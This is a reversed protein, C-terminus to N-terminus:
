ENRRDRKRKDREEDTDMGLGPEQGFAPQPEFRWRPTGKPGTGESSLVWGEYTKLFHHHHCLLALNDLTTPGGEAFPVIHDIELGFSTGCGPVVCTSDRFVLATRLQQNITRGLHCVARIDGAEHFVIRLFSDNALDRAMAVPIPGQNDIECCEDGETHGRLLADRDVRVIVSCTPPGDILLSPDDPPRGDTTATADTTDGTSTADSTDRGSTDEVGADADAGATAGSSTDEVGADADDEVGTDGDGERDPDPGSASGTASTPRPRPSLPAGTDPHRRTLLAYFADARVTREPGDQEDGAARRTRRLRTAVQDLHSLIQAGRDLTDRGQYCFAGEGDTWSSFYRAARIRVVRARPDESGSTARSRQCRERVAQLPAEEAGALLEQEREPALIGAGTLETVKPGSLVGTRLAAETGPLQSLRQGNVLTNQAQGTAVGELSALMVAASRHGGDRWVGSGEIRPALLTKGAVVLRELGVLSAYLGAADAGTLRAPDLDSVVSALASRAADLRAGLGTEGRHGDDAGHGDSGDVGDSGGAVGSAGAAGGAGADSGGARGSPLGPVATGGAVSEKVAGAVPTM